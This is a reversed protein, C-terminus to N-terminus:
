AIVQGAVLQNYLANLAAIVTNTSSGSAVPFQPLAALPMVSGGNITLNAIATAGLTWGSGDWSGIVEAGGSAPNYIFQMNAQSSIGDSSNMEVGVFDTHGATTNAPGNLVIQAFSGNVASELLGNVFGANNLLFEVVGVGGSSLIQIQTKSALGITLDAPYKNGYPDTGAAAAFSAVLTGPGPAPSYIFLGSFGSPSPPAPTTGKLTVVAGAWVVQTSGPGYTAPGASTVIQYAASGESNAAYRSVTWGAPTANDAGGTTAAGIWLEDAVATAATTGSTWSGSSTGVNASAQDVPNGTIIGSVEYLTIGTNSNPVLNSGSVAVATQGGACDYDVWASALLYVGATFGSGATAGNEFNGASGGLTVGSISPVDGSTTNYANVVVVVCNGATTAKPFSGSFAGPIVIPGQVLVPGGGGGGGGTGAALILLNLLQNSWAGEAGV